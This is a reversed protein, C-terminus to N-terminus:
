WFGVKLKSTYSIIVVDGVKVGRETITWDKTPLLSDFCQILWQNWWAEELKEKYSLREAPDREDSRPSFPLNIGTKGLLLMSPTIVELYDPESDYNRSGYRAYIPRMNLTAAIKVFSEATGNRFAAEAPCFTWKVKAGVEEVIKDWDYDLGEDLDKAAKVLQSGKDSHVTSPQGVDATYCKWAIMFDKTSYGPAVEIRVARTNLCVLIVAWVKMQGTGKRTGRKKLM